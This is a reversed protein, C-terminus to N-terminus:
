DTKGKIAGYAMHAGKALALAGAAGSAVALGGIMAKGVNTSAVKRVKRAAKKFMRRGWGWPRRRELQVSAKPTTHAIALNGPAPLAITSDILFLSAVLTFIISTFKM